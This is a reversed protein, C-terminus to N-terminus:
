LNIWYRRVLEGEASRGEGDAKGGHALVVRTSAVNEPSVTVLARAVGLERLVDLGLGLARRGYGKGREGPRVYYGVNGGSQLLRENLPHRIRVMGVVAGADDIVWYVVQPVFGPVVKAPDEGDLSERLFEDLGVEGRGFSTGGVGTEGAGLELLLEAVGAPPCLSLRELHM